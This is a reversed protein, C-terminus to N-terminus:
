PRLSPDRSSTSPFLAERSPVVLARRKLLYWAARLRRCRRSLIYIKTPQVWLAMPVQDQNQNKQNQNLPRCVDLLCTGTSHNM